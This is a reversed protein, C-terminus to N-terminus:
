EFYFANLVHKLTKRISLISRAADVIKFRHPAENARRIYETRVRSFFANSENEFRDSRYSDARRAIAVQPAIDFLITLDPQFEAQVLRELAELKLRSLGRGGGQYAFMADSFRDSVVWDGHTIAPEIVHTIHERRSALMLLMETEPDMDNNLLIDRLTEGLSTGGPERTTIVNIGSRKLRSTLQDCFWALHTTKGSGDIGEFTIFKGNAM